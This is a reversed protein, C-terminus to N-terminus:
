DKSKGRVNQTKVIFSNILNPAKCWTIHTLSNNATGLKFFFFFLQKSEDIDSFGKHFYFIGHAKCIELPTM